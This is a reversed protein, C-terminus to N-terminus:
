GCYYEIWSVAETKGIGKYEIEYERDDCWGNVFSGDDWFVGISEKDRCVEVRNGSEDKDKRCDSDKWDSAQGPAAFLLSLTLVSAQITRIAKCATPTSAPKIIV